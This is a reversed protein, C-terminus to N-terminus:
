AGARPCRRIERRADHRAARWYAYFGLLSHAEALAAHAAAYMPDVTVARAFLDRARIVGMGRQMLHFRGKLYLQYAELDSTGPKVLPESEPAVWGVKLKQVIMEAIEDQIAFVDDAQRDYRDSWLQFGDGANVLQVAIRVRSGAKRVSGTLVHAVHLKDRVECVDPTRGKFAFSSMRAAVQVNPIQGLANIIEETIGDSFYENEPDPSLNTFPLVAISPM